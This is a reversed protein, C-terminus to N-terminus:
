TNTSDDLAQERISPELRLGGEEFDRRRRRELEETLAPDVDRDDFHAKASPEVGGVDDRGGYRGDGRDAEVVLLIETRRDLRDRELLRADRLGANREHDPQHRGLGALDDHLRCQSSACLRQKGRVTDHEFPEPRLLDPEARRCVVVSGQGEPQGAIMLHVIREDGNAHQFRELAAAEADGRSGDRSTHRVDDPRATEIKPTQRAPAFEEHVGSM